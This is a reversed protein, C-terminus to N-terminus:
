IHGNPDWQIIKQDDSGTVISRGDPAYSASRVSEKCRFIQHVTTQIDWLKLTDDNSATLLTKGDDSVALTTVGATHGRFVQLTNGYLDWMRVTCDDSGTFITKGDPSFASCRISFEHGRFIQLPKGLLDWLIATKDESGTLVYKGDPSFAVTIIAENHGRFERLIKGHLNWLIATCDQSGTLITNGDPSFAVSMIADNHGSFVQLLDGSTNWLRATKDASATIIMKCDPSFAVSMVKEKHGKFEMLSKGQLNWLRATHDRSGTLVTQGDPAFAVTRIQDDHGILNIKTRGQMDIILGIINRQGLLIADVKPSFAASLVPLRLDFSKKYPVNDYYIRTLNETISQNAPDLEHAYQAIQLGVTPDKLSVEKSLYNFSNARSQKEKAMAKTREKIAWFTFGSLVLIAAIAATIFVNRKRRKARELNKRSKEILGRLDDPLYLKSVYPAIYDLDDGSLYKGRKQWNSFENDIFQRIELIEKEVLTIKEYIKTALADHRLEYKDNQDKDRLIRLHIFTQLIEQLKSEEVPKGLTKSYESVEYHSM